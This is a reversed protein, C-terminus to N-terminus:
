HKLIQSEKRILEVPVVSIEIPPGGQSLFYNFNESGNVISRDKKKNLLKSDIKKLLSSIGPVLINSMIM